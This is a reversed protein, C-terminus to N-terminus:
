FFSLSVLPFANSDNRSSEVLGRGVREEGLNTGMVILLLIIFSAAAVIVPTMWGIDTSWIFSALVFFVFFSLNTVGDYSAPLGSARIRVCDGVLDSMERIVADFCQWIEGHIKNTLDFVMGAGRPIKHAEIICMYLIEVCFHPQWCPQACLADLEEQCLIGRDNNM